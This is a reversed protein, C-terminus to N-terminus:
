EVDSRFSTNEYHPRALDHEKPKGWVSKSDPLSRGAKTMPFSGPLNPSQSM